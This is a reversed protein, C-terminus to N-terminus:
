KSKPSAKVGSRLPYKYKLHIAGLQGAGLPTKTGPESLQGMIAPEQPSGQRDTRAFTALGVATAGAAFRVGRQIQNLAMVAFRSLDANGFGPYVTDAVRHVIVLFHLAEDFFDGFHFPLADAFVLLRRASPNSWRSPRCRGAVLAAPM